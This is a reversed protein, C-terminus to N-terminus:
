NTHRLDRPSRDVRTHAARRVQRAAPMQKTAVCAALLRECADARPMVGHQGMHTLVRPLAQMRQVRNPGREACATILLSFSVPTFRPKWSDRPWRM